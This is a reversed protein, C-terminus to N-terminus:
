SNEEPLAPSDKDDFFGVISGRTEGETKTITREGEDDEDIEFCREIIDLHELRQLEGPLLSLNGIDYNFESTTSIPTIEGSERKITPIQSSTSEQDSFFFNLM